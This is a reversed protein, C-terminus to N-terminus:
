RQFMNTPRAVACPEPRAGAPDRRHRGTRRCAVLGLCPSQALSAHERVLPDPRLVVVTGRDVLAMRPAGGWSQRHRGSRWRNWRAALAAALHVDALSCDTPAPQLALAM